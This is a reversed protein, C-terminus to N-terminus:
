SRLPETSFLIDPRSDWSAQRWSSSIPPLGGTMFYSQSQCGLFVFDLTFLTCPLWDIAYVKFNLLFNQCNGNRAVIKLSLREVSITSKCMVDKSVFNLITKVSSVFTELKFIRFFLKVWDVCCYYGVSVRKSLPRVSVSCNMSSM